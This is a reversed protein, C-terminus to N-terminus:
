GDNRLLERFDATKPQIYSVVSQTEASYTLYYEYSLTGDKKVRRQTVKVPANNFSNIARALNRCYQTKDNRETRNRVNFCTLDVVPVDKVPICIDATYDLDLSQIVALQQIEPSLLDLVKRQNERNIAEVLKAPSSHKENYANEVIAPANLYAALIPADITHMPVFQSLRYKAIKLQDMVSLETSFRSRILVDAEDSDIAPVDTLSIGDFSDNSCTRTKLFGAPEAKTYTIAIGCAKLYHEACAQPYKKNTVQENRNFLLVNLLWNPLREYDPVKEGLSRLLQERRVNDENHYQEMARMGADLMTYDKHPTIEIYGIIHNDNLKRARHLAQAADRMTAGWTSQTFSCVDFAPSGQYNLGITVVPTYGIWQKLAWYTNVSAFDRAKIKADTDKHYVEAEVGKVSLMIDSEPKTGWVSIVRKGSKVVNVLHERFGGMGGKDKTFLLSTRKYPLTPNIVLRVFPRLSSLFYLSRNTVFADMAVVCRATRVIRELTMVNELYHKHHTLNPSCSALLTECEDLFVLDYDRKVKHASQVSCILFDANIEAGKIKRYDVFKAAFESSIMDAYSQRATIVIVSPAGVCMAKMQTTKGTGMHSQVLITPEVPLPRLFGNEDCWDFLTYGTTDLKTIEEVCAMDFLGEFRKLGVPNDEKAFYRLTRMTIKNPLTPNYASIISDVWREDYKSSKKAYHHINSRNAGGDCLAWILNRATAYDDWRYTAVLEAITFITQDDVLLREIPPAVAEGAGARVAAAPRKKLPLEIDIRRADDPVFQVILDRADCDVPKLPRNQRPKSTFPCRLKKRADYVSFDAATTKGYLQHAYQKAHMTSEVRENPITWHFSVKLHEFSSADAIAINPHLNRLFALSEAHKTTFVDPSVGEALTEDWDGYPRVPIDPNLIEYCGGPHARMYAVAEAPDEFSQDPKNGNWNLRLHIPM